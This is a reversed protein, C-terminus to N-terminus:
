LHFHISQSYSSKFFVYMMKKNKYLFFLFRVIWLVIWSEIWSRQIIQSVIGIKLVITTPLINTRARLYWTTSHGEKSNNVSMEFRVNHSLFCESQWRLILFVHHLSVKHLLSKIRKLPFLTSRLSAKNLINIINLASM